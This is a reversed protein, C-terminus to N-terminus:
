SENEVGSSSTVLSEKEQSVPLLVHFRAGKNKGNSQAWVSGKMATMTNACWHLGIGTLGKSKSSVGREFLRPMMAEDIGTGNDEIEIHLMEIEDVAEVHASVTIKPCLPGARQISEAANILLNELVQLFLIRQVHIPRLTKLNKDLLIRVKRRLEAPILEIAEQTLEELLALELPKQAGRFTKQGNLMEEIQYVQKSLDGLSDRVQDISQNMSDGALVLFKCLDQKRTDDLQKNQLESLAQGMRQTSISGTCERLREIGVVLPSLANRANHLIGSSVEAMGSVFSKEVLKKQAADLRSLMRDFESALIGIEDKRSAPRSHRVHKGRGIAAIDQILNRLPQLVTAQFLLTIVVIALSGATLKVVGVLYLIQRSHAYLERPMACRIIAAPQGDVDSVIKNMQLLNDSLECSYFEPRGNMMDAKEPEVSSCIKEDYAICDFPILLREKLEKILPSTIFRVALLTANVTNQGGKIRCPSVGVIAPGISTKIIGKKSYGPITDDYILPKKFKRLSAIFSSPEVSKPLGSRQYFFLNEGASNTLCVVDALEMSSGPVSGFLSARETGNFHEDRSLREVQTQLRAAENLMAKQCREVQIRGLTTELKELGPQILRVYTLCEIGAYGCFILFLLVFIRERLNM